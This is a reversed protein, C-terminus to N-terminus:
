RRIISGSEVGVAWWEGMEDETTGAPSIDPRKVKDVRAAETPGQAQHTTAHLVESSKRKSQLATGVAM